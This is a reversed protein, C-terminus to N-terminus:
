EWVKRWWSQLTEAQHPKGDEGTYWESCNHAFVSEDLSLDSEPKSRLSLCREAIKRDELLQAAKAEREKRALIEEETHPFERAATQASMPQSDIWDSWGSLKMTTVIVLVVATLILGWGILRHWPNSLKLGM